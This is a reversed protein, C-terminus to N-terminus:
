WRTTRAGVPSTGLRGANAQRPPWLAWAAQFLRPGLIGRSEKLDDVRSKLFTSTQTFWKPTEANEKAIYFDFTGAKSHIGLCEFNYSDGTFNERCRGLMESNADIFWGRLDNNIILGAIPDNTLGDYCGLNIFNGGRKINYTEIKDM